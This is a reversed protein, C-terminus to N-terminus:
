SARQQIWNSIFHIGNWNESRSEKRKQFTQRNSTWPQFAPPPPAITLRPLLRTLLGPPALRAWLKFLLLAFLSFFFSAALDAAARLDPTYNPTREGPTLLRSTVNLHGKVNLRSEQSFGGPHSVGQSLLLPPFRLTSLAHRSTLPLLATVPCVFADALLKLAKQIKLRLSLQGLCCGLLLLVHFSFHKQM